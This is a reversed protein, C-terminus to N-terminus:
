KTNSRWSRPVPICYTPPMPLTALGCLVPLVMDCDWYPMVARPFCRVMFNWWWRHGCSHLTWVWKRWLLPLSRHWPEGNGQSSWPFTSCCSCGLLVVFSLHSPTKSIFVYQICLFHKPIFVAQSYPFTLPLPQLSFIWSSLSYHLYLSFLFLFYWLCLFDTRSYLLSRIAWYYDTIVRHITGLAAPKFRLFTLFLLSPVFWLASLLFQPIFLFFHKSRKAFCRSSGWPPINTCPCICFTTSRSWRCKSCDLLGDTKPWMAAVAYSLVPSSSMIHMSQASSVREPEPGYKHSQTGQLSSGDSTTDSCLTLM